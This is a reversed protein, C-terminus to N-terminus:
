GVSCIVAHYVVSKKLFFVSLPDSFFYNLNETGGEGRLIHSKKVWDWNLLHLLTACRGAVGARLSTCISGSDEKEVAARELGLWNGRATVFRSCFCHAAPFFLGALAAPLIATWGGTGLCVQAGQAGPALRPFLLSARQRSGTSVIRHWTKFSCARSKYALHNLDYYLNRFHIQLWKNEEEQETRNLQVWLM